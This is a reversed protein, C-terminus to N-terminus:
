GGRKTTPRFTKGSKLQALIGVHNPDKNLHPGDRLYSTMGCSTCISESGAYYDGVTETWLDKMGCSPCHWKVKNYEHFYHHSDPYENLVKM